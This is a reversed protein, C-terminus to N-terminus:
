GEIELVIVTVLLEGALGKGWKGLLIAGSM